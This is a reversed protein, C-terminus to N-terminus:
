KRFASVIESLEAHERTYKQYAGRDQIVGPDSLLQEIKQFREEVGALKEFM